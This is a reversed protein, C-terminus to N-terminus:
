EAADTGRKLIVLIAKSLERGPSMDDKQGPKRAVNLGEWGQRNAMDRRERWLEPWRNRLWFSIATMNGEVAKEYLAKAVDGDAAAKGSKLAAAFDPYQRKWRNITRESVEFAEALDRDIAGLLCLNRAQEPFADRFLSQKAKPMEPSEPM